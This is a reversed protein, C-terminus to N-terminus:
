RKHRRRRRKGSISPRVPAILYDMAINLADDMVSDFDGFPWLYMACGVNEDPLFAFSFLDNYAADTPSLATSRARAITSLFFRRM